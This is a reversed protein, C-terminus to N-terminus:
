RGWWLGSMARILYLYVGRGVWGGGFATPSCSICTVVEGVVFVCTEVEGVLPGRGVLFISCLWRGHRIPLSPSLSPPLSPPLPHISCTTEKSVLLLHLRARPLPTLPLVFM